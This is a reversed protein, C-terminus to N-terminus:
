KTAGAPLGSPIVDNIHVYGFADSTVPAVLTYSHDPFDINPGFCLRPRGRTDTGVVALDSCALVLWDGYQEPPFNDKLVRSAYGHLPRLDIYQPCIYDARRWLAQLAAQLRSQQIATLKVARAITQKKADGSAKASALYDLLARQSGPLLAM